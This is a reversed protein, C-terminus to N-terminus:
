AAKVITPFMLEQLARDLGGTRAQRITMVYDLKKQATAIVPRMSEWGIGDTIVIFGVGQARLGAQVEPYARGLVESPKSGSVSSFKGEIGVRVEGGYFIVYDIKKRETALEVYMPREFTLPVGNRQGVEHVVSAVLVNMDVELKAGRRNKRANPELGVLVGKVVDEVSTVRRLFDMLGMDYFTKAIAQARQKAESGAGLLKAADLKFDITKTPDSFHIKDPTHAILIQLVKLIAPHKQLLDTLDTVPNHKDISQVLAIERRLRTLKLEIANWDTYEAPDLIEPTITQFFASAKDPTSM